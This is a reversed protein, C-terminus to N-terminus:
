LNGDLIARMATAVMHANEDDVMDILCDDIFGDYGLEYIRYGCWDVCEAYDDENVPAGDLQFNQYCEGQVDIFRNCWDNYDNIM